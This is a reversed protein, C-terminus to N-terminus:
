LVASGMGDVRSVDSSSMFFFSVYKNKLLYKSFPYVINNALMLGKVYFHTEYLLGGFVLYATRYFM